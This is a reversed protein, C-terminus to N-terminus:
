EVVKWLKEMLSEGWTNINGMPILVLIKWVLETLIEGHQWM